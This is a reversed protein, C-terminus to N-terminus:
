TNGSYRTEKYACSRNPLGRQLVKTSGSFGPYMCIKLSNPPLKIYLSQLCAYAWRWRSCQQPHHLLFSFHQCRLKGRRSRRRYSYPRFYSYDAEYTPRRSFDGKLPYAEVWGLFLSDTDKADVLKVTIILYEISANSFTVWRPLKTPIVWAGKQRSYPGSDPQAWRGEFRSRRSLILVASPGFAEKWFGSKKNIRFSNREVLRIAHARRISRM